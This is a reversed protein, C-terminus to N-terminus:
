SRPGALGGPRVATREVDFASAQSADGNRAFPYLRRDFRMRGQNGVRRGLGFAQLNVSTGTDLHELCPGDVISRRVNLGAALFSHPLVSSGEITTGCDIICNSEVSSFPGVSVCDHLTTKSGIYCPATLRVSRAISAGEDVWIGESLQSGVPQLACRGGLADSVLDSYSQPSMMRKVYGAVRYEAFPGPGSPEIACSAGPSLSARDMLRVGLPGEQDIAETIPNRTERHFRVFDPLDIEAYAKLCVVLFRELGQRGFDSMLSRPSAPAGEGISMVQIGLRRIKEMWHQLLNKGLVPWLPSAYVAEQQALGALNSHGRSHVRSESVQPILVFAGLEM